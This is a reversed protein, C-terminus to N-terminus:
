VGLEPWRAEIASRALGDIGLIKRRGTSGSIVTVRSPPVGLAAAVLRTVAVNAAGEVPAATVRVLLAGDRVGDIGDRSARPIVRVALRAAGARHGAGSV